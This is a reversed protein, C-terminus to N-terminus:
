IGMLSRGQQYGKETLLIRPVDHIYREQVCEFDVLEQILDSAFSNFSVCINDRNKKGAKELSLIYCAAAKLVEQAKWSLEVPLELPRVWQGVEGKLVVDGPDPCPSWGRPGKHLDTKQLTEGEPLIDGYVVRGSHPHYLVTSM